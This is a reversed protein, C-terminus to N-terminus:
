LSQMYEDMAEAVRKSVEVAAVVTKAGTVVDGSAFVGARTTRGCEDVAVLGRSSVDIGHTTSVIVSRPGQGIAIIVSDFPHFTESHPIERMEGKEDKELSVFVVGNDKFEVPQVCELIKAGDVKAMELEVPRCSIEAEPRNLSLTVDHCGHRVVTRAVDMATNGGGIVVVKKGLTYVDPNRLYDIAYHINGFSEGKIGLRNPRWVGTGIFVSKFGDRFFDDITINTGISTNPRIVVGCKILAKKFEDLVTKPLRFEPIGYRLVGGILDNGEFITVDYGKKALVFSITIGAPGSGIVAVKMGNKKVELRETPEFGQLFYASIYNEIVSFHVPAGKIGRVCHGECQKEHPCVYSCVLSLPNNSFLIEGAEEIRNERFLGIVDRIRTHVPCGAECRPNKCQLCRKAEEVISDNM